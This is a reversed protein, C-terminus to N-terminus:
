FVENLLFDLVKDYLLEYPFKWNLITSPLRNIIFTVTLISDGLFKIPLGSQFMLARSGQLLHKHKREVIDNQQPTYVCSKQHLVGMSSLFKTMKKNVFETGNDSRIVKIKKDFQTQAMSFFATFKQFVQTKDTLLLTWTAKAYDDVITM